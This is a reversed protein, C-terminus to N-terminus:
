RLGQDKLQSFTQDVEAYYADLAPEAEAESAPTPRRMARGLLLAAIGLVALPPAIWAVTAFGSRPPELLINEGYRGAFYRIIQERSAGAELQERILGRMQRALESPSDAVSLGQCVPCQLDRAIARTQDDLSQAWVSSLSVLWLLVAALAVTWYPPPKDGAVRGPPWCRQRLTGIIGRAM